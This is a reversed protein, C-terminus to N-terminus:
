VVNHVTTAAAEVCARIRRELDKSVGAVLYPSMPREYGKLELQPLLAANVQEIIGPEAVSDPTLVLQNVPAQECLRSALNVSNGLVTFEMRESSGLNGALMLGSNVAIYPDSGTRAAALAALIAGAVPGVIPVGLSM